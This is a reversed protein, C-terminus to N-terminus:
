VSKTEGGEEGVRRGSLVCVGEISAGEREGGKGRQVTGERRVAGEEKGGGQRM